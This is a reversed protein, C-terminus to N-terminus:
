RGSYICFLDTVDDPLYLSYPQTVAVPFQHVKTERVVSLAVRKMEKGTQVLWWNQTILLVQWETVSGRVGKEKGQQCKSLEDPAWETGTVTCCRIRFYGAIASCNQVGQKSKSELFDSKCHTSRSVNLSVSADKASYKTRCGLGLTDKRKIVRRFRLVNPTNTTRASEDSKPSGPIAVKANKQWRNCDPHPSNHAIELSLSVSLSFFLCLSFFSHSCTLFSLVSFCVSLFYQVVHGGFAIPMQLELFYSIIGAETPAKTIAASTWSFLPWLTSFDGDFPCCWFKNRLEPQAILTACGWWDENSDTRCERQDFGLRYQSLINRVRSMVVIVAATHCGSVALRGTDRKRPLHRRWSFHLVSRMSVRSEQKFHLSNLDHKRGKFHKTFSARPFTSNLASSSSVVFTDIVLSLGISETKKRNVFIQQKELNIRLPFDVCTLVARVHLNSTFCCNLAVFNVAAGNYQDSIRFDRHSWLQDKNPICPQDRHHGAWPIWWPGDFYAGESNLCKTWEVALQVTADVFPQQNIQRSDWHVREQKAPINRFHVGLDQHLSEPFQWRSYSGPFITPQAPPQRNLVKNLITTHSPANDQCLLFDKNTNGDCGGKWMGPRQCRNWAKVTGLIDCYEEVGITMGHPNFEALIIGCSTLFNDADWEKLVQEQGNQCSLVFSIDQPCGSNTNRRPKQIEFIFQPSMLHSLWSWFIMMLWLAFTQVNEDSSRRACVKCDKWSNWRWPCTSRIEPDQNCKTQENSFSSTKEGILPHQTHFWFLVWVEAICVAGGEDDWPNHIAQNDRPLWDRKWGATWGFAPHSKVQCTESELGLESLQTHTHTHTHTHGVDFSFYLSWDFAALKIGTDYCFECSDVCLDTELGILFLHFSVVPRSLLGKELGHNLQTSPAIKCSLNWIRPRTRFVCHRHRHTDTSDNSQGRGVQERHSLLMGGPTLHPRAQHYWRDPNSSLLPGRQVIAPSGVPGETPHVQAPHCCPPGQTPRYHPKSPPLPGQTPCYCTHCCTPPARSARPRVPDPHKVGCAVPGHFTSFDNEVPEFHAHKKVSKGRTVFFRPTMWFLSYASHLAFTNKQSLGSPLLGFPTWGFGVSKTRAFCVFTHRQNSWKRGTFSNIASPSPRGWAVLREWGPIAVIQTNSVTAYTPVIWEVLM